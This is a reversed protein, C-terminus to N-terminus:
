GARHRSTRRPNGTKRTAHRGPKWPPREDDAEVVADAPRVFVPPRPSGAAPATLRQRALLGILWSDGATRVGARALGTRLDHDDTVVLTTEVSATALDVVLDDAPRSGAYRVEIGSALRRTTAGPAPSGDLAVVVTVGPPVVSRLRGILSAAPVAEASRSLAHLLNTGDVILRSMGDLPSRERKM